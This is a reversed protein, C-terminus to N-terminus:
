SSGKEGYCDNQEKDWVQGLNICREQQHALSIRADFYYLYLFASVTILLFTYLWKSYTIFFLGILLCCLTTIVTTYIVIIDYNLYPAALFAELVLMVLLFLLTIGKIFNVSIKKVSPKM